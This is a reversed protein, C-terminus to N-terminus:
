KIRLVILGTGQYNTRTGAYASHVQLSINTGNSVDKFTCGVANNNNTQIIRQGAVIIDNQTASGSFSFQGLVLVKGSFKCKIYNENQEFDNSNNTKFSGGSLPIDTNTWASTTISTNGTLLLMAYNGLQSAINRLFTIDGSDRPIEMINSGESNNKVPTIYFKNLSGNYKLKIGYDAGDNEFLNLSIDGSDADRRLVLDELGYIKGGVDLAGDVPIKNIGIKGDRFSMLPTSKIIVSTINDNSLKDEIYFEVDYSSDTDFSGTLTRNVEFNGKSDITIGKAFTIYSGWTGSSTLKT